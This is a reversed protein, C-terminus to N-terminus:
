INVELTAEMLKPLLSDRIEILKRIQKENEFIKDFMPEVTAQFAGLIEDSPKQILIKSFDGTNLNPTATGGSAMAMLEDVLTKLKLFLYFRYSDAKPIISNIQQNTQSTFANMSVLGVTAICSVCISREPLYKKSQSNAGIESLSDETDFVFIKGHMDPIRIFPVDSGFYEGIQKSPTKGCIVEGFDSIQWEERDDNPQDLFWHRFLTQALSELTKNQRHLLDIKDDLSSLVEAIARQVEIPPLPFSYDALQQANAGPQASGGAIADVYDQFRDSKLVYGVFFPDAKTPNIKYRILYSAFVADVEDKIIANYGTTAGTRAIVLDGIGLKYKAQDKDSIKCYPVDNWNIREGVIDTIRLFKPGVPEDSASATYGYAIDSSIDRLEVEKWESM